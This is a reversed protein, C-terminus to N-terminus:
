VVEYKWTESKRILNSLELISIKLLTFSIELWLKLAIEDINLPELL